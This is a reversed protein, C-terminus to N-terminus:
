IEERECKAAAFAERKKVEWALAAASIARCRAVAEYRTLWERSKPGPLSAFYDAFWVRCDLVPHYYHGPCEVWEPGPHDHQSKTM